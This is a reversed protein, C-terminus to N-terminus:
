SQNKRTRVYAAQTPTNAIKEMSWGMERRKKLCSVSIGLLEALEVQTYVKGQYEIKCKGKHNIKNVPTTLVRELDWNLCYYRHYVRKKDLNLEKSWEALTKSEGRFEHRVNDRKNSNQEGVTAWRCNSPTYNGDPDIRDLSYKLSPREGMDAYFGEFTEWKPDYTIGRGGYNYFKPTNPNTCRTKMALWSKYTPSKSLGHTINRYAL